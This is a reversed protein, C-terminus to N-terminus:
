RNLTGFVVALQNVKIGLDDAQESMGSLFKVSVNM